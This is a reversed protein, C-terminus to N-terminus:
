SQRRGRVKRWFRRLRCFLRRIRGCACNRRRLRVRCARRRAARHRRPLRRNNWLRSSVRMGIFGDFKHALGAHIREGDGDAIGVAGVFELAFLVEIEVAELGDLFGQEIGAHAIIGSTRCPAELTGLSKTWSILLYPPLIPSSVAPTGSASMSIARRTPQVLTLMSVSRRRAM